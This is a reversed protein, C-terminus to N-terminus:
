RPSVVLSAELSRTGSPADVQVLLQTAGVTPPRVPTVLHYDGASSCWTGQVTIPDASTAQAVIVGTRCGQDTVSFLGAATGPLARAASWSLKSGDPQVLTGSATDGTLAGELHATASVGDFSGDGSATAEYWRTHTAYTSAGGCSYALVTTGARVIAVAVDSGDAHGIFV